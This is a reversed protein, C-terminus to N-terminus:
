SLVAKARIGIRLFPIKKDDESLRQLVDRGEFHQAQDADLDNSM